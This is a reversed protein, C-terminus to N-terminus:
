RALPHLLRDHDAPSSERKGHRRRRRWLLREVQGLSPKRKQLPYDLIWKWAAVRAKEFDAVNGVRLRILEEFLRVPAVIMGGYEEGLLSEGTLANVRFPWPTHEADGPRVHRALGEGCNIGADLYKQAGTMEYFLLYGLGLEGVKDTEIGGYFERPM